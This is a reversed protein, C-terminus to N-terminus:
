KFVKNVRAHPEYLFEFSGQHDLLENLLRISNEDLGSSLSLAIAISPFKPRISPDLSWCQNITDWVHDPVRKAVPRTPRFGERVEQWVDEARFQRM